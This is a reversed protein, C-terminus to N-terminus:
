AEPPLAWDGRYPRPQLLANAEPNGTFQEAVPDWTLRRGQKVSIWALQCLTDGRVATEIDSIAPQKVVVSEIFNRAHDVSVPLKVPMSGCQNRPETLLSEVSAEIAGRKVHVWAEEGIFRVGHEYGKTGDNVFTVPTAGNGFEYRVKWGLIADLDGETPFTGSGEVSTPGTADTGNGWQAIDLHHIGWCSIMGLSFRAMNEHNDRQLKDPHFPTEPAPGVWRNWDLHAPVPQEPYKPGAHGGPVSVQIERLRGLRGNRALECAWRFKQDSRQQTGFQFVVQSRRALARVRRAEAFSLGMPKEHYLHRGNRLADLAALAHWHVPLAMLVADISPDAHLARFDQHVKVDPAGYVKAISAKARELNRQNVDCIATVRAERISLFALMDSHGQEGVGVVGVSIRSAPSVQSGAGVVHAPVWMPATGAALMGRLFSRRTSVPGRSSPTPHM